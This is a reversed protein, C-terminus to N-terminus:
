ATLAYALLWICAESCVQVAAAAAVRKDAGALRARLEAVERELAEAGGVPTINGAAGRLSGNATGNPQQTGAATGEDPAHITIAFAGESGAGARAAALQEQPPLGCGKLTECTPLTAAAARAPRGRGNPTELTGCATCGAQGDRFRPLWLAEGGHM